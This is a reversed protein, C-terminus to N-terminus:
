GGTLTGIFYDELMREAAKSHRQSRKRDKTDFATTGDQGCHDLITKPEAPHVEIYDTVDYVRGRIVLWCSDASSHAAVQAATFSSGQAAADPAQATQPALSQAWGAFSWIAGMALWFAASAIVVIWRM